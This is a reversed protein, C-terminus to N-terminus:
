ARPLHQQSSDDDSEETEAQNPAAMKTPTQGAIFCAGHGGSSSVLKATNGQWIAGRRAGDSTLVDIRPPGRVAEDPPRLRVRIRRPLRREPVGIHAGRKRSTSSGRVVHTFTDGHKVPNSAQSPLFAFTAHSLLSLEDSSMVAYVCARSHARCAVDTAATEVGRADRWKFRGELVLIGVRRRLSGRTESSANELNPSATTAATAM